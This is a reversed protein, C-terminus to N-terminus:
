PIIFGQVIFLVPVVIILMGTCFLWCSNAMDTDLNFIQPPILSNFASPMASLIIVVRLVLGDQLSRDKYGFKSPHGYYRVHYRYQDTDEYYMARAYWDGYMPVSQAGWHSWIGFKADKFWEACKYQKLSELTPKYPGEKISKEFM